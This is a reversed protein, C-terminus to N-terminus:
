SGRGAALAKRYVHWGAALDEVAIGLSKFLTIEGDARRGPIKGELVEGIEGLIHDDAVEGEARALLFDGSEALLSERRDTFLRSRAVAPGDLERANPTCAGAANVHAGPSIWEGFLVPERAATVTCIVDAGDVAERASPMPEVALGTREEEREAFRRASEPRRSWVRVRRVTRVARMADLHTRAQVGSGLIALDGADARALARTAVASAAATRIATVSSADLMALPRGREQEFLLVMGQHSEEGHLHNEPVVTIVKVGAVTRGLMGPMVALLGNRDPMWHAARLPQIAEGRALARLAEEVVEVCEDMSLLAEVDDRNLFLFSM